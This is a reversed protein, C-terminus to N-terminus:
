VFSTTNYSPSKLMSNTQVNSKQPTRSQKRQKSALIYSLNDSSNLAHSMETANRSYYTSKEMLFKLNTQTETIQHMIEQQESDGTRTNGFSMYGSAVKERDSWRAALKVSPRIPRGDDRSNGLDSLSLVTSM